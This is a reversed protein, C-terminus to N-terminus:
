LQVALALLKLIHPSHKMSTYISLQHIIMITYFLDAAPHGSQAIKSLQVVKPPENHNKSLIFYGLINAIKQDVKQKLLNV